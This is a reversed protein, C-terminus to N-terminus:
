KVSDLQVAEKGTEEQVLERVWEVQLRLGERLPVTPQFGLHQQAKHIDAGTHRADGEQAEKYMLDAPQGALEELLHITEILTIRSGGGINYVEGATGAEAAALNAAVADAVYTFDRSQLGDGYVYIPGSLILGRIFKHFAMDPRQRPGYVTFYRLGVVPVRYSRWYLHCLHEVALKTVGYPSVPRPAVTEPTPFTEADGYVSSSSAFVFKQVPRGNVAELLRQTALLNDRLYDQFQTGWSTRVGAQAAQHFVWSVDDLLPALELETLEGKVFSFNPQSLLARLNRWKIWPAYYDTLADVGVVQYGRALLHEALHSGIFGAVGTVLVKSGQSVHM